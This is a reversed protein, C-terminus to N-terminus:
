EHEHFCLHMRLFLRVCAFVCLWLRSSLMDCVSVLVCLVVCHELGREQNLLVSPFLSQSLVGCVLLALCLVCPASVDLESADKQERKSQRM